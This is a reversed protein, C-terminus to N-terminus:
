VFIGVYKLVLYEFIVTGMEELVSDKKLWWIYCGALAKMKSCGPRVDHLKNLVAQRDQLPVVGWAGWLLFGDGVILERAMSQYSSINGDLKDSPFDLVFGKM